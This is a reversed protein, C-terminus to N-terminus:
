TRALRAVFANGAEKMYDPHHHAYIEITRPMTLGMAGAIKHMSVGAQAAWTAFTHRPVHPAVRAAGARDLKAQAVSAAFARRESRINEGAWNVACAGKAEKHAAALAAHLTV